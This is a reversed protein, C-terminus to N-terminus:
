VTQIYNLFSKITEHYTGTHYDQIINEAHNEINKKSDTWIVRSDIESFDIVINKYEASIKSYGERIETTKINHAGIKILAKKVSSLLM